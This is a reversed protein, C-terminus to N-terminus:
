PKGAPPRHAVTGSLRKAFDSVVPGGCELAVIGSVVEGDAGLGM